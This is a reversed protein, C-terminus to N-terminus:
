LGLDAIVRAAGRAAEDTDLAGSGLAHRADRVAQADVEAVRAARRILPQLGHRGAEECAPPVRGSANPEVRRDATDRGDPLSHPDPRYTGDIRM